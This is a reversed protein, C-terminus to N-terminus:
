APAPRRFRRLRAQPQTAQLMTAAAVTPQHRTRLPHRDPRLAVLDQRLLDRAGIRAPLKTHLRALDWGQGAVEERLRAVGAKVPPLATLLRNHSGSSFGVRTLRQGRM